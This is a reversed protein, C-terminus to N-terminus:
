RNVISSHMQIAGICAFTKHCTVNYKKIKRGEIIGHPLYCDHLGILLGVRYDYIDYFTELLRIQGVERFQPSKGIKKKLIEFSTPHLYAARFLFICYASELYHSFLLFSSKVVSLVIILHEFCVM